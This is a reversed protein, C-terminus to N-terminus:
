ENFIKGFYNRRSEGSVVFECWVVGCWVVGCWVVGCVRVRLGVVANIHGRGHMRAGIFLFDELLVNM